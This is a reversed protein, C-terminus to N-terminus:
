KEEHGQSMEVFSAQNEDRCFGKCIGGQGAGSGAPASRGRQYTRRQIGIPPCSLSWFDRQPRLSRNWPGSKQFTLPLVNQICYPFIHRRPPPPPCQLDARIQLNGTYSATEEATSCPPQTKQTETDCTTANLLLM